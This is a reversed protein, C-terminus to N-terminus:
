DYRMIDGETLVDKGRNGPLDGGEQRSEGIATSCCVKM